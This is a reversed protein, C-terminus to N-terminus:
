TELRITIRDGDQTVPYAILPLQTPGKLVGGANDYESGHCPCILRGSAPEVQCGQHMCRTLVATFSGDPHRYLYIPLPLQPAEILAFPGDGFEAASVVLQGNQLRGAVYRFPACSAALLGAALGGVFERRSLTM